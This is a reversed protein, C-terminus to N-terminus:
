GSGGISHLLNDKEIYAPGQFRQLFAAPLGWSISLVLNHKQWLPSLAKSYDAQKHSIPQASLHVCVSCLAFACPSQSFNQGTHIKADSKFSVLLELEKLGRKKHEYWQANIFHCWIVCSLWSKTDTKQHKCTVCRWWLENHRSHLKIGGHERRDTWIRGNAKEANM